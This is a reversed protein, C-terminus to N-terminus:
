SLVPNSPNSKRSPRLALYSRPHWAFASPRATLFLDGLHYGVQHQIFLLAEPVKWHQPATQTSALNGSEIDPYKNM